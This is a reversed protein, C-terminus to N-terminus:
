WCWWWCWWWWCWRYVNKTPLQVNCACDQPSRHNPWTRGTSVKDLSPQALNTMSVKRFDFQHNPQIRWVWRELDVNAPIHTRVAYEGKSIWMQQFSNLSLLISGGIWVFSKREPPEVFFLISGSIWVSYKVLNAWLRWWRAEKQWIKQSLGSRCREKRVQCQRTGKERGQRTERCREQRRYTFFSHRVDQLIQGWQGRNCPLHSM